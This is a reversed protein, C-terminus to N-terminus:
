KQIVIPPCIQIVRTVILNVDGNLSQKSGSVANGVEEDPLVDCHRGAVAECCNLWLATTRLWLAAAMNRVFCGALKAAGNEFGSFFLFPLACKALPLM